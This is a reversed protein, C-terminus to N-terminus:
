PIENKCAKITNERATIQEVHGSKSEEFGNRISEAYRKVSLDDMESRVKNLADAFVNMVATRYDICKGVTEITKDILDKRKSLDNKLGDIKRSSADILKDVADISSSLSSKENSDSSRSRKNDLDSRKDKLGRYNTEENSLQDRLTKTVGADCSVPGRAGDCWEHVYQQQDKCNSQLSSYPISACGKNKSAERFDDVKDAAVAADALLAAVAILGIRYKM